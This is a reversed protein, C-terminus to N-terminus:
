QLQPKNPSCHLFATWSTSGVAESACGVLGLWRISYLLVKIQWKFIGLKARSQNEADQVPAINTAGQAYHFRKVKKM